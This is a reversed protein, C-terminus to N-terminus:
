RRRNLCFLLITTGCVMAVILVAAIAWARQAEFWYIDALIM